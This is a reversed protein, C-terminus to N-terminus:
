RGREGWRERDIKMKMKMEMEMELEMEVEIQMDGGEERVINVPVHRM